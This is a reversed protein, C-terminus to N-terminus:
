EENFDEFAGGFSVLEPPEMVKNCFPCTICTDYPHNKPDPYPKQTKEIMKETNQREKGCPDCRRHFPDFDDPVEKVIRTNAMATQSYCACLLKTPKLDSIAQFFKSFRGNQKKSAITCWLSLRLRFLTFSV